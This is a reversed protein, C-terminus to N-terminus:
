RSLRDSSLFSRPLDYALIDSPGKVVIRQAEQSLVLTLYVFFCCNNKSFRLHYHKVENQFLSIMSYFGTEYQISSYQPCIHCRNNLWKPKRHVSCLM